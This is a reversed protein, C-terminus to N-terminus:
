NRGLVVCVAFNVQFQQTVKNTKQPKRRKAGVEANISPTLGNSGTTNKMEDKSPTSTGNEKSTVECEDDDKETPHPSM